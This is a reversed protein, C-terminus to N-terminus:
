RVYLTMRVLIHKPTLLFHDNIQLPQENSVTNVPLM